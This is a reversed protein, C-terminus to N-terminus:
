GEKPRVPDFRGSPWLLLQAEKVLVAMSCQGLLESSLFDMDIHGLAKVVPGHSGFVRCILTKTNLSIPDQLHLRVEKGM